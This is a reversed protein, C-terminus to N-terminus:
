DKISLMHTMMLGIQFCCWMIETMVLPILSKLTLLLRVMCGLPNKSARIVTIGIPAVKTLILSISLPTALSSAALALALCAM